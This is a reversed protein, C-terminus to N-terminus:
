IGKVENLAAKFTDFLQAGIIKQGGEIFFTPAATVMNTAARKRTEELIPIYIKDNLIKELEDRDLGLSTTIEAITELDGINLCDTFFAKFMAEHYPEYVGKERAFEGAQMALSSNSMLKQHNFRVGLPEGQRDLGAFFEAANMGAFYEELLVGGPPTEPHIEYPLWEDEITFEEKM